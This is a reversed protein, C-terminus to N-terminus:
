ESNPGIFDGVKECRKYEESNPDKNLSPCVIPTNTSTTNVPTNVSTTNIQIFKFTSLIKKYTETVDKTNLGWLRFELNNYKIPVVFYGCTQGSREREIRDFCEYGEPFVYATYTTNNISVDQKQGEYIYSPPENGHIDIIFSRIGNSFITARYPINNVKDVVSPEQNFEWEQPYRFEFGYKENHYTKWDATEINVQSKKSTQVTLLVQKDLDSLRGTKNFYFTYLNDGYEVWAGSKGNLNIEYGDVDGVKVGGEIHIVNNNSKSRIDNILDSFNSYTIKAPYGQGQLYNSIPAPTNAFGTLIYPNDGNIQLNPPYKFSIGILPDIYTKWGEVERSEARSLDSLTFGATPDTTTVQINQSQEAVQPPTKSFFSYISVAGILLIIIGLFVWLLKHSFHM